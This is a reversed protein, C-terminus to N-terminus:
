PACRVGLEDEKNETEHGKESSMVSSGECGVQSGTCPFGVKGRGGAAQALMGPHLHGGASGGSSIVAAETKEKCLQMNRHFSSEHHTKKKIIKIMLQTKITGFERFQPYEKHKIDSFGFLLQM